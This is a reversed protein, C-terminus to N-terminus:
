VYKIPINFIQFKDKELAVNHISEINIKNWLDLDGDRIKIIELDKILETITM